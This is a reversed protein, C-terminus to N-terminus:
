EKDDDSEDLGGVNRRPVIVGEERLHDLYYYLSAKPNKGFEARAWKPIAVLEIDKIGELKRRRVSGAVEIRECFPALKEVLQGALASAQALNM